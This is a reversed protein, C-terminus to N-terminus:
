NLVHQKRLVRLGLPITSLAGIAALAIGVSRRKDRALKGSLLLGLGLGLIGRTVSILGLEPLKLRVERMGDEKIESPATSLGRV